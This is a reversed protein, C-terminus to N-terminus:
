TKTSCLAHILTGVPHEQKFIPASLHPSPAQPLFNLLRHRPPSVPEIRVVAKIAALSRHSTLIARRFYFGHSSALHYSALPVFRFWKRFIVDPSGLVARMPASFLSLRLQRTLFHVPTFSTLMWSLLPAARPPSSQVSFSHSREQHLMHECKAEPERGSM